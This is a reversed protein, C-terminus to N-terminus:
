AGVKKSILKLFALTVRESDKGTTNVKVTVFFAGRWLYGATTRGERAVFSDNTIAPVNILSKPDRQKLWYRFFAKSQEWTKMRHIVIEATTEMGKYLQTAAEMAGNDTYLEFGGDYIETFDDPKPCYLLTNAYVGWGPIEHDRPLLESVTVSSGPAAMGALACLLLLSASVQTLQKM